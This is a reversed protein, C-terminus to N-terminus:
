PAFLTVDSFPSTDCPQCSCEKFSKYKFPVTKGNQCQLDVTIDFIGIPKCCSCQQIGVGMIFDSIITSLCGGQCYSKKVLKSCQNVDTYMEQIESRTCNSSTDPKSTTAPTTTTSTTSTTTTTTTDPKTYKPKTTPEVLFHNSLLLYSYRDRICM